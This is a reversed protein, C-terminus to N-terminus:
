SLPQEPNENATTSSGAASSGPTGSTTTTTSTTTTATTGTGQSTTGTESVNNPEESVVATKRGTRTILLLGLFIIALPWLRGFDMWYPIIDFEEMLFFGGLGILIIGAILRGNGSGPTRKASMYPPMPTPSVNGGAPPYASTEDYVRYDTNFASYNPMIPRSPVVIWLILYIIFGSLGFIFAFVFIIRMWTVELDFYEALGSCVGAIMKDNENRYLRKEM